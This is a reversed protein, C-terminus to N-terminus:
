IPFLLMRASVTQIDEESLNTFEPLFKQREETPPSIKDLGAIEVRFGHRRIMEVMKSHRLMNIYLDGSGGNGDKLYEWASFGTRSYVRHDKYDVNVYIMGNCSIHERLDSILRPLDDIHEFVSNSVAIDFIKEEPRLDGYRCHRLKISKPISSDLRLNFLGELDFGNINRLISDKSQKLIGLGTAEPQLLSTLLILLTTSAVAEPDLSRAEDIGIVSAAGCLHFLTAFGYPRAFGCGIEVCRKGEFSVEKSRISEAFQNFQFFTPGPGTFVSMDFSNKIMENLVDHFLRIQPSHISM